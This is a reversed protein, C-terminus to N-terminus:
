KTGHLPLVAKMCCLPCVATESLYAGSIPLWECKKGSCLQVTPKMALQRDSRGSGAFLM